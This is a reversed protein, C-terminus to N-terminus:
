KREKVLSFLFEELEKIDKKFDDSKNIKDLLNILKTRHTNDSKLAQVILESKEKTLHKEM